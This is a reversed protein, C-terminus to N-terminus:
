GQGPITPWVPSVPDETNEPLDRLEQRYTAWASKDQSNLPSDPLQTWDCMTLKADRQSRMIAWQKEEKVAVLTSDIEVEMDENVKVCEADFAESCQLHVYQNPDGWPGGYKAQNPAADEYRSAISRDSKNVILIKM